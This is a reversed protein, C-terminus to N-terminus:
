TEDTMGNDNIDTGIPVLTAPQYIVDGGDVDDRNSISERLENVTEIGIAKRDKLEELKKRRLIPLSEPDYTIKQERTDIKFRPLLFRSLGSFLEDALPLVADEYLMERATEMNNFTSASVTVLPIPIKFRFYIARGAIQDLESYDMDKQSSGMERVEEVDGGSMISIKGAKDHGALSENVKQLRERQEDDSLGEDKFIILMSPRGGNDLLRVNHIRGKIQQQTELAAAQLPSDSTGDTSMSSFGSMRYLEKLPGDYYRAIKDKSIEEIYKGCAVGQGVIFANVYENDQTSTAIGTPKIPYIELPPLTITGMGYFHTQNTLLKHKSIREAFDLWTHYPNPRNLLDLVPSNDLISGDKLKIIPKIQKFADSIIDVATAVSSNQRYIKFAKETTIYEDTLSCTIFENLLRDIYVSRTSSQSAKTEKQEWFKWNM